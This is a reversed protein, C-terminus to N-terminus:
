WVCSSDKVIVDPEELQFGEGGYYIWVQRDLDRGTDRKSGRRVGQMVAIVDDVGDNNVDYLVVEDLFREVQPIHQGHDSLLVEESSIGTDKIKHVWIQDYGRTQGDVVEVYGGVFLVYQEGNNWFDNVLPSFRSISDKVFFPEEAPPNGGAYFLWSETKGKYIAFDATDDGTLDVGGWVNKGYEDARNLEGTQTWIRQLQVADKNAVLENQGHALPSAFIFYGALSILLEIHLSFRKM